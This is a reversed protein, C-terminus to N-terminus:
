SQRYEALFEELGDLAAKLDDLNPLFVIRFHDPEPWNFGRGQVLLVRKAVLFDYIFKQDDRIHFKKLDLKPFCYLAAKPKVCSVGPIQNVREWCFTRQEYLRGGPRTLDYISQYGGLSTQIAYQAPVNACMRMNSLMDLGERYSAAAKKLGSLYMWGSRFGAARYAKSLGNFTVFLVDDALSAMSHHVDGDYVIKDYIEDSFVILGHKRALDVIAELVPKPYIAGTPNNPNIVVIGKTRDTIKSEM